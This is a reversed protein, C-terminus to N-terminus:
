KLVGLYTKLQHLLEYPDKHAVHRYDPSKLYQEWPMKDFEAMAEKQARRKMQTVLGGHRSMIKHAPTGLAALVKFPISM